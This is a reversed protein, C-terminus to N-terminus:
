WTGLSRRFANDFPTEVLAQQAGDTGDALWTVPYTVAFVSSGVVTAAVSIPRLLLVDLVSEFIGGGAPGEAHAPASALLLTAALALGACRTALGRTTQNSTRM